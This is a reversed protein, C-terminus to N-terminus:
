NPKWVEEFSQPPVNTYLVTGDAFAQRYIVQPTPPSSPPDSGPEEAPPATTQYRRAVLQVYQRTDPYPPIGRHARVAEPGAHYAALALRVDGGFRQLLDRLYRVGGDINQEPDFANRVGLRAASAPMLQMLGLAGKPSVARPNGGSEVRVVADVLRPDVGHRTSAARILSDYLAVRDDRRTVVPAPPPPAVPPGEPPSQAPPRPNINTYTVNGAEDELRFLDAGAPVAMTLTGLLMVLVLTSGKPPTESV